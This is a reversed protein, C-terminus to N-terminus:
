GGPTPESATSGKKEVVRYPGARLESLLWLAVRAPQTKFVDPGGEAPPPVPVREGNGDLATANWWRVHPAVLAFLEAFTAGAGLGNLADLQAFTLDVNIDAALPESGEEVAFPAEVREWVAALVAGTPRRQTAAAAKPRRTGM